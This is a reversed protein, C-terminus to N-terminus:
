GFVVIPTPGALDSPTWGKAVADLRAHQALMLARACEIPGGDATPSLSRVVRQGSQRRAVLCAQAQAVLLADEPADSLRVHEQRLATQLADVAADLAGPAGMDFKIVIDHNTSDKQWAARWAAFEDRWGSPNVAFRAVDFRAFADSVAAVVQPRPAEWPDRKPHGVPRAWSGLLYAAGSVMHVAVLAVAEHTRSGQFGIAVPAGPGLDDVSEAAKGTLVSGAGVSWNFYFRQVEFPDQDATMVDRAISDADVWPSDRYVVELNRRVQGADALDTNQVEYQPGLLYCGPETESAKEIDDAVAQMGPEPANALMLVRGGMPATNRRATRYLKKGGNSPTWSQGEDGVVDTTPQGERSVAAATVVEALSERRGRFAVATVGVDIGLEDPLSSERMMLRFPSFTNATQDESVAMVQLWPASHPRGVPEGNADWGDFVAPGCLGAAVVVGGVPSKGSKKALRVLGRGYAWRGREDLSYWDAFFMAQWGTFRLPEGAYKGGPVKFHAEAWDMVQWGLTWRPERWTWVGHEDRTWPM